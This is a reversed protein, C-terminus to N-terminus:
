KNENIASAIHESIIKNLDKLSKANEYQLGLIVSNAIQETNLNSVKNDQSLGIDWGLDYSSNRIYFSKDDEAKDEFEKIRISLESKLEQELKYFKSKTLRYKKSIEDLRSFDAKYKDRIRKEENERLTATERKVRERIESKLETSVNMTEGIYIEGM